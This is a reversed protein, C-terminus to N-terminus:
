SEVIPQALIWLSVMTYAVMLVLMPLQSRLVLRREHFLRQAMVHALFIAVIHGVVITVVSTIWVFRANVIGIDVFYHGTGFLNWGFGFPDSILPIMYQGVILLFSLYHALHYALAIPVLTLVFAGALMLTGPRDAMRGLSWGMLRCFGLYLLMFFLVFSILGLSSILTVADGFLPQLLLLLPRMGESYLAWQTLAAWLPTAMLGDFTVTALMLLVFVTLSLSATGATLLGIGPPRLNWQRGDVDSRRFCEPCNIGNEGAATVVTSRCSNCRQRDTGRIETIAFRSLLGFVLNFVEGRRLWQERGFLAMGLWSILSYILVMWAISAPRDSDGWVLELWAFLAYLLVAPWVGLWGPLTLQLSCRAAPHRRRILYELALWSNRWPNVLPWLNGLLGSLYAFGVWWIVWVLTPTINSFPQQVGWWGALMVLLLLGVSVFRILAPLLGSTLVRLPTLRLLNFRPYSRIEVRRRMFLAIVLFSVAVTAAAASIYLWLPVPLDYRQAFGHGYGPLPLLGVLVALLRLGWRDAPLLSGTPM